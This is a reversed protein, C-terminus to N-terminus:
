PCEGNATNCFGDEETFTQNASAEIAGVEIKFATNMPFTDLYEQPVTVSTQDAPVQITFKRNPSFAEDDEPEM